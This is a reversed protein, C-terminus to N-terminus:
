ILMPHPSHRSSITLWGSASDCYPTQREVHRGLGSHRASNGPIGRPEGSYPERPSVVQRGVRGASNGANLPPTTLGLARAKRNHGNDTAVILDPPLPPFPQGADIGVAEAERIYGLTTKSERHGARQMIMLFETKALAEWTIGTARLDYFTIKKTGPRDEQLDARDL